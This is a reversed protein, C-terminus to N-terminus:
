VIPSHRGEPETCQFIMQGSTTWGPKPDNEECEHVALPQAVLEQEREEAEEQEEGEEEDEEEEEEHLEEDDEEAEEEKADEEM